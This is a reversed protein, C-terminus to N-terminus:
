DSKEESWQDALALLRALPLEFGPLLPTTYIENERIVRKRVRKGQRSYVTMIREFRDIIWYEQVDVEMYEDRKEEYDRTQERRGESVFEAVITPTENRRPLRGLGAWIVRDARRRNRRTQVTQEPLTKDLPSGQPNSEQYTRLWHGLEENPDREAELPPPMVVLVEDILEYRWGEVFEARDFERPSMRIGASDPRLVSTRKLVATAM